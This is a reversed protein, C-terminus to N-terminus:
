VALIPRASCQLVWIACSHGNQTLVVFGDLTFHKSIKQAEQICWIRDNGHRSFLSKMRHKLGKEGLKCVNYSRQKLVGSDFSTSNKGRGSNHLEAIEM